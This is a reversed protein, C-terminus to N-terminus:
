CCQQMGRPIPWTPPAVGMVPVPRIELQNSAPRRFAANAFELMGSETRRSEHLKYIHPVDAPMALITPYSTVDLVERVWYRVTSSKAHLKLVQVTPDYVLGTAVTNM